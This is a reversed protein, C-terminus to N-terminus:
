FVVDVAVSYLIASDGDAGEYTEEDNYQAELKLATSSDYDWRMGLIISSEETDNALGAGKQILGNIGSEYEGKHETYTAHLSIEGLRHAYAVLWAEDDLFASTGYDLQTWEAIMSNTGNDYTIAAEIFTTTQGTMQFDSGAGLLAATAALAALDSDDGGTLILEAQHYSLRSGFNGMNTNLVLGTFNRFDGDYETDGAVVVGEYRGYYFQVSGDINGSSFRQTLDIGDISSFPIRYVETPPRVWNYAYGVELFDSYYFLPLSMRGMRVDLDDTAAYTVFAWAAETEYDDSGRSVLQGTVTTSDNVQKSVQLGLINDNKFGGQNDSGDFHADDSDAMSAGVSLFGNIRLDDNAFTSPAAASAAICAALILKNM